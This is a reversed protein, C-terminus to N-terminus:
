IKVWRECEKMRTGSWWGRAVDRGAGAVEWGEGGLGWGVEWEEGVM